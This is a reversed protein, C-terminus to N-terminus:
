VIREYRNVIFSSIQRQDVKRFGAAEYVACLKARIACDLRVFRKQKRIALDAAYSLLAQAIGKGAFADRVALKHVFVSEGPRIDPWFLEDEFTLSVVGASAGGVLAIHWDGAQISSVLKPVEFQELPWLPCQRDILRRAAEKLVSSVTEIDAGRAPRMELISDNPQSTM